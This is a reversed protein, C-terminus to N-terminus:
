GGRAALAARALGIERRAADHFPDQALVREFAALAERVRGADRLACAEEFPTRPVAAGSAREPGRALLARAIALSRRTEASAPNSELARAYEAAAGSYWGLREYAVGLNHRAFWSGPDSELAAKFAVAAKGLYAEREAPRREARGLYHVGIATRDLTFQMRVPAPLHVLAGALLLGGGWLAGARLPRVTVAAACDRVAAAAYVILVPVLPLRYRETVFFALLTLAYCGLFALLLRDPEALPGRLRWLIGALALPAVLWYGVAMWGLAPAFNLRVFDFGVYNPVEFRNALLLFKRGLLRLAALPQARWFELARGAWYRSVESPKLRRGLAREATATSSERLGPDTLGSGPDARFVGEAAPNNGIFLNVGGNSSVLVLDRGAVWNRLTVPLVALALAALFFAPTRLERRPTGRRLGTALFLLAAPVFVLINVKDLVALGLCAGAGAARAASGAARADLLLLLGLDAFLITLTIMLPMGDFFALLGYAAALAGALTGVLLSGGALRRALLHIVVCNAAGAISQVLYLLFFSRGSLAFLLAIFWPYPPSSHFPIDNTLLRGGLIELARAHYLGPDGWPEDFFPAGAIQALYALRLGLAALFTLLLIAPGRWRGAATSAFPKM